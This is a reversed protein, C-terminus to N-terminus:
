IETFVFYPSILVFAIDSSLESLSLESLSSPFTYYFKKVNM